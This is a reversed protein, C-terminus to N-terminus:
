AGPLAFVHDEVIGRGPAAVRLRGEHRRALDLGREIAQERTAHVSDSRTADRRKVVWTGRRPTVTWTRSAPVRIVRDGTVTSM